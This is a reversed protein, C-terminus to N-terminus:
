PFIVARYFGASADTRPMSLNRWDANSGTETTTVRQWLHMDESHEIVFPADQAQLRFQITDETLADVRFIPLDSQNFDDLSLLEDGEEYDVYSFPLFYMEDTTKEGWNVDKPPSNPNAFNLQTNDYSASALIRSGAPAKIYNSFTYSGQWNFDWEGVRIINETSGDPRELIIEWDKGLYHMHPWVNLLSIDKKIDWKGTFKQTKNKPIDFALFGAVTGGLQDGFVTDITANQALSRTQASTVSEGLFDQVGEAILGGALLGLLPNLRYYDKNEDVLDSPLLLRTNVYRDVPKDAFFLNISSQDSEKVQWPAYHIQLLIDATTPLKLGTGAPFFRPTTGPVWGPYALGERSSVGFGGFSSYGENPDEADLKRAGGTSDITLLAHHVIQANGPRFEVAVVDKDETLGTPLVFVRYEDRGNGKITYSDAMTLTLDPEGLVSGTPFDPLSPALTPDGEPSGADAWDSIWQIQDVTLGREGVFRSFSRDPEWPPMSGEETVAKISLAHASIEEYNTLSMPGIEGERHCVTCNNYIIPAIHESFTIEQAICSSTLAFALLSIHTRATM